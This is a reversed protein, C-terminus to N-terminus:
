LEVEHNRYATLAASARRYYLHQSGNSLEWWTIPPLDHENRERNAWGMALAIVAGDPFDESTFDINEYRGFLVVNSARTLENDETM